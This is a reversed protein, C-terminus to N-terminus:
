DVIRSTVATRSGVEPFTEMFNRQKRNWEHSRAALIRKDRDASTVSGTTMEDSLM